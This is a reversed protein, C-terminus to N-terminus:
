CAHRLRLRGPCVDSPQRQVVGVCRRRDSEDAADVHQVAGSRIGRRPVQVANSRRRLQEAPKRHPRHHASRRRVPQRGRLVRRDPRRRDCPRDSPQHRAGSHRGGDRHAPHARRSQRPPTPCPVRRPQGVRARLESKGAASGHGVVPHRATPRSRPGSECPVRFKSLDTKLFVAYQVDEDPITQLDFVNVTATGQTSSAPVTM